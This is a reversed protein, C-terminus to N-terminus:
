RVLTPLFYDHLKVENGNSGPGSQGPTTAGLLAGDM